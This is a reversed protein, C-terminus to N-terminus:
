RVSRPATRATAERAATNPASSSLSAPRVSHATFTCAAGGGAARSAVARVAGRDTRYLTAMPLPVVPGTGAAAEVGRHHARACRELDEPRNLRETLAAGDFSAAPVDQVV